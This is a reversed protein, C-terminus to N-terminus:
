LTFMQTQPNLTQVKVAKRLELGMYRYVNLGRTIDSEYIFGNYWYSSWSGGLTCTGGCFPGPPLPPPDVWGLAHANSPDTFDIVWTGGQYNGGVLIDRNRVPVVNYNHITCNENSGQDRPIPLMGLHEGTDADYFFWSKVHDEDSEECEAQLGGGPEWGLIIVEGDYSFAASHWRGAHHEGSPIGVGEEQITYQFVPNVPDSIDFVNTADASACAALDADGLIVGIDHCGTAVGTTFPGELPVRNVLEADSLDNLDIAIVDMFDGAESSTQGEFTPTCGGSSSNNSYVILRGADFGALSATHSGCPLEVASELTPDSPNSIDFVHVGEWGAPVTTGDCDRTTSKKGNWSRVVINGWVVVDGQDGNCVTQSIFQPDGPESIDIMRFGNYNGHVLYNGSFALDSNTLSTGDPAGANAPFPSHGLARMRSNPFTKHEAGAPLAPAVLVLTSLLIVSWRFAKNM